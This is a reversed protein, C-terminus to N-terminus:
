DHPLKALLIVHQVILYAEACMAICRGIFLPILGWATLQILTPVAIPVIQNCHAYVLLPLVDLGAIALAGLPNRFNNAFLM